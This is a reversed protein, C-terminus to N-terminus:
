PPDGGLAKLLMGKIYITEQLAIAAIFDDSTSLCCLWNTAYRNMRLASWGTIKSPNLPAPVNRASRTRRIKRVSFVLATAM